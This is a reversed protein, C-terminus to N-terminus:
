WEGKVKGGHEAVFDAAEADDADEFSDRGDEEEAEGHGEFVDPVVREADFDDAGDVADEEEEVAEADDLSPGDGFPGDFTGGEEENGGEDGEAREDHFRAEATFLFVQEVLGGGCLGQGECM